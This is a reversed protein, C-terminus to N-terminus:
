VPRHANIEDFILQPTKSSVIEYEESCGWLLLALGILGGLVTFATKNKM